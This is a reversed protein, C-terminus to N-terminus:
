LAQRKIEKLGEEVHGMEKLDDLLARLFAELFKRRKELDVL